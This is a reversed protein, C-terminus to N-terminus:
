QVARKRGCLNKNTSDDRANAAPSVGIEPRCAGGGEQCHADGSTLPRQRGYVTVAIPGRVPGSRVGMATSASTVSSRTVSSCQWVKRACSKSDAIILRRQAPRSFPPSTRSYEGRKEPQDHTNHNQRGMRVGPGASEPRPHGAVPQGLDPLCTALAEHGDRDEYDGQEAGLGGDAGEDTTHIGPPQPKQGRRCLEAGNGERLGNGPSSRPKVVSEDSGCRDDQPDRSEPPEDSCPPCDDPYGTLALRILIWDRGAACRVTMLGRWPGAGPGSMPLISRGTLLLQTRKLRRTRHPALEASAVSRQDGQGPRRPGQDSRTMSNLHVCAHAVRSLSPPGGHGNVLARSPGIDLEACRVSVM